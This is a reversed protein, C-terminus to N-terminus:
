VKTGDPFEFSSIYKCGMINAMKELEEQTFKGTKLRQSIASQSMGMQRGLETVSIGAIKCAAEIKQKITIAIM